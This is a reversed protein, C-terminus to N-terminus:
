EDRATEARIREKVSEREAELRSVEEQLRERAQVAAEPKGAAEAKLIEEQAMIEREAIKARYRADVEALAKRQEDSLRPADPEGKRLREMALEYASKV